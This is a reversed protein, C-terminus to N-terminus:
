CLRQTKGMKEIKRRKQVFDIAEQDKRCRLIKFEEGDPKSPLRLKLTIRDLDDVEDANLVTPVSALHVLGEGVFDDRRIRNWDFVHFVLAANRKEYVNEALPVYFTEDFLPALTAKHVSTRQPSAHPDSFLSQPFAQMTLYPNSSGSSLGVERAHWIKVCIREEGSVYGTQVILYGRESERMREQEKELQALYCFILKQSSKRRKRACAALAKFTETEMTEADLGRGDASFFSAFTKLLKSICHYVCPGLDYRNRVLHFLKNICELYTQELVKMFPKGLLWKDLAQLNNKLYKMLDKSTDYLAGFSGDLLMQTLYKGIDKQIKEMIKSTIFNELEDGTHTLLQYLANRFSEVGDMHALAEFASAWNMMEPVQLLISRVYVVDNLTICLKETVVLRREHSGKGMYYAYRKLNRAVQHVYFEASSCIRETLGVLFNYAKLPDPWGLHMWTITMQSLVIATDLASSWHKELSHVSEIADLELARKIRQVAKRYSLELWDSLLPEFWSYLSVLEISEILSKPLKERLDLLKRLYLFMKFTATAIEHFQKSDPSVLRLLQAARSVCSEVFPSLLKEIERFTVIFFEAGFRCEDFCIPNYFHLAKYVEVVCDVTFEVSTLVNAAELQVRPERLAFRQAFWYRASATSADQMFEHFSLGKNTIVDLEFFKKLCQLFTKMNQLADERKSLMFDRTKMIVDRAWGEFSELSHLLVQIENENLQNAVGCTAISDKWHNDLQELTILLYLATVGCARNYSEVVLWDIVARQLSSLGSQIAHQHLVNAARLGLRGDWPKDDRDLTEYQVFQKRIKWHKEFSDQTSHNKPGVLLQTKIRLEGKQPRQKQTIIQIWQECEVASISKLPIYARGIFDDELGWTIAQGIQQFYRRLGSFGHVESIEKVADLFNEEQDCDWVDIQICETQLDNVELIFEENWLPNITKAVVATTVLKSKDKALYKLHETKSKRDLM